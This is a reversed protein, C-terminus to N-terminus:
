YTRGVPLARRPGPLEQAPPCHNPPGVRPLSVRPWASCRRSPRRSPRRNCSSERGGNACEQEGPACDGYRFRRDSFGAYWPPGRGQRWCQSLTKQQRFLGGVVKAGTGRRGRSGRTWPARTYVCLVSMPTTPPTGGAAAERPGPQCRGLLPAATGVGPDCEQTPITFLRGTLSATPPTVAWLPWWPSTVSLFVDGDPLSQDQIGMIPPPTRRARRLSLPAPAQPASPPRARIPNLAGQSGVLRQPCARPRTRPGLAPGPLPRAHLFPGPPMPTGTRGPARSKRKLGGGRCLEGGNREGGAPGPVGLCGADWLRLSATRFILAPPGCGGQSSGRTGRARGQLGKAGARPLEPRLLGPRTM